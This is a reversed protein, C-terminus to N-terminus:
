QVRVQVVLPGKEVSNAGLSPNTDINLFATTGPLTGPNAIVRIPTPGSGSVRDISLWDPKNTIRWGLSFTSGPILANISFASTQTGVPISVNNTSVSFQPQRLVYAEVADLTTQNWNHGLVSGVLNVRFTERVLYNRNHVTAKWEGGKPVEVILANPLTVSNYTESVPCRKTVIRAGSNFSYKWNVMTPASVPVRDTTINSSSWSESYSASLGPGKESLSAGISFSQSNSGVSTSPQTEFVRARNASFYDYIFTDRRWSYQGIAGSGGYPAKCDDSENGRYVASGVMRNTVMYYDVASDKGNLRYTSTYSTLSGAGSSIQKIRSEQQTWAGGPSTSKEQQKADLQSDIRNEWAELAVSEEFQNSFLALDKNLVYEFENETGEPSIQIGVVDTSLSIIPEAPDGPNLPPLAVAPTPKAAATDGASDDSLGLATRLQALTGGELVIMANEAAAKKAATIKATDFLDALKLCVHEYRMSTRPSPECLPVKESIQDASAPPDDGGCGALGAMALLLARGLVTSMM